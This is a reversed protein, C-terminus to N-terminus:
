YVFREATAKERVIVIDEGDKAYVTPYFEIFQPSMGMTYAGVKEFVLRDGVRLLEGERTFFRDGEMCTFGGIIQRGSERVDADAYEVRYTYTSKRMLPDIHIRSGDTMVFDNNKTSKVDTIEAIYDVNAGILAMGPEAILAVDATRVSRKLNNCILEFYDDFSPKGPMGGFYGGGVDVYDLELEYRDAIEVAMNSVANYINLSRTKSSCHLHLGSLRIDNNRLFEIAALLEGREYSFGFRGDESGCQSEGKCYDEICFNVRLGIRASQLADRDCELLWELERHSDINVVAGGGVAELFERKGKVPGNFIINSPDFGLRRALLYEDSSVVEAFVGREKMFSLIWPLNNTKVSYGVIWNKKRKSLASKFAETQERLADVHVLFCPTQFDFDKYNM